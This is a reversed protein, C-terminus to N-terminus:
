SHAVLRRPTNGGEWLMCFMDALCKIYLRFAKRAGPSLLMVM